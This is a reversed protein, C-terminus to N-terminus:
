YTVYKCWMYITMAEIDLVVCFLFCIQFETCMSQYQIDRDKFVSIPDIYTYSFYLFRVLSIRNMLSLHSSFYTVLNHLLCMRDKLNENVFAHQTLTM